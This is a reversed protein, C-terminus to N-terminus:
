VILVSTSIGFFDYIWAACVLLCRAYFGLIMVLYKSGVLSKVKLLTKQSLFLSMLKKFAM